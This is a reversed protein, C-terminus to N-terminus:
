QASGLHVLNSLSVIPAGCIKAFEAFQPKAQIEPLYVARAQMLAVPDAAWLYIHRTAQAGLVTGLYGWSLIKGSKMHGNLIPAVAEKVLADARGLQDPACTYAAILVTNGPTLPPRPSQQAPLAVAGAFVLVALAAFRVRM